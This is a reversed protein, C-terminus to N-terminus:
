HRTQNILNQVQTTIDSESLSTNLWSFFSNGMQPASQNVDDTYYNFGWYQNGYYAVKDFRILSQNGNDYRLHMLRDTYIEADPIANIIGTEMALRAQTENASGSTFPYQQGTGPVGNQYLFSVVDDIDSGFSSSDGLYVEDLIGDLPYLLGTNEQRPGMVFETNTGTEHIIATAGTTIESGDISGNIYGTWHSGDWYCVLHYWKGTAITTTSSWTSGTNDGDYALCNFKGSGVEITYGYRKLLTTFRHYTGIYAYDVSELKVWASLIPESIEFSESPLSMLYDSNDREFNQGYGIKGAGQDPINGSTMALSNVEDAYNLGSEELKYYVVAGNNLDSVEDALAMCSLLVLLFITKKMNM